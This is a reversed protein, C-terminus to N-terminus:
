IKIYKTTTTIPPTSLTSLYGAADTFQVFFHHPPTHTLRTFSLANDALKCVARTTLAPQGTHLHRNRACLLWWSHVAQGWIRSSQVCCLRFINPM